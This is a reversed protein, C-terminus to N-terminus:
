KFQGVVALINWGKNPYKISGNSFHLAGLGLRDTFWWGLGLAFNLKTSNKDTEKMLAALGMGLELRGFGDKLMCYGAGQGSYNSTAVLQAGCEIFADGPAAEEWVISFGVSPAENRVVTAGVNMRIEDGRAETCYAIGCVIIFGLLFAATGTIRM